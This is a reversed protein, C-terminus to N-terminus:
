SNEETIGPRVSRPVQTLANLWTMFADELMVELRRQGRIRSMCVRCKRSSRHFATRCFHGLQWANCLTPAQTTRPAFGALSIPAM